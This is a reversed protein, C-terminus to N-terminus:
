NHETQWRNPLMELYWRYDYKPNDPIKGKFHKSRATGTTLLSDRTTVFFQEIDEALRSRPTGEAAAYFPNYPEHLAITNPLQNLLYCVLTTGSRPIGTLIVNNENM